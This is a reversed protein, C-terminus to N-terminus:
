GNRVASVVRVILGVVFCAVAVIALKDTLDPRQVFFFVIAAILSLFAAFILLGGIIKGVPVSSGSKRVKKAKKSVKVKKSKVKKPKAVVKGANKEAIVERELKYTYRSLKRESRRSARLEKATKKLEDNKSILAANQIELQTNMKQVLGVLKNFKNKPVYDNKLQKNVKNFKKQIDKLDKTDLMEDQVDGIEKNMREFEDKVVDLEKNLEKRTVLPKIKSLISKKFNTFGSSLKDVEEMEKDLEDKTALPKIRETVNKELDKFGSAVDKDLDRLEASLSKDVTSIESSLKSGLKMVSGATKKEIKKLDAKVDKELTGFAKTIRSDVEEIDEANEAIAEANEDSEKKAKKLGADLKSQVSTTLATMKSSVESKLKAGEVKSMKEKSLKALSKSNEDVLDKTGDFEKNIDGVLKEVQKKKVLTKQEKGLKAIDASLDKDLDSLNKASDKKQKKIKRDMSALKKENRTMFEKFSLEVGRSFEAVSDAVLTSLEAVKKEVKMIDKDVDAELAFRKEGDKVSAILGKVEDFESNIDRVLGEVQSMSVNTKSQAKLAKFEKEVKDARSNLKESRKDLEDRTITDKISRLEEIAKKVKTFESNIDSVLTKTQDETTATKQLESLDQNIKKFETEWAVAQKDFESASVAKRDIDELKKELDWLKKVGENLEGIKIKLINFKDITVFDAKSDKMTQKTEALKIGQQHLNEKITTMDDKIGSFSRKLAEDLGKVSKVKTFDIKRQAKVAM